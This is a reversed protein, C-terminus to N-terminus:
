KKATLRNLEEQRRAIWLNPLPCPLVKAIADAIMITLEAPSIKGVGLKRRIQNYTFPQLITLRDHGSPYGSFACPYIPIDPHRMALGAAGPELHQLSGRYRHPQLFLGLLQGSYLIERVEKLFDRGPNERNVAVSGLGRLVYANLPKYPFSDDEAGISKLYDRSESFYPVVLNKKAVPRVLRGSSRVAAVCIKYNDEEGYHNGTIIAPGKEPLPYGDIISRHTLVHLRSRLIILAAAVPNLEPYEKRIGLIKNYFLNNDLVKEAQEILSM